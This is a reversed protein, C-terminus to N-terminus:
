FQLRPQRIEKACRNNSMDVYKKTIDYGIFPRNYRASMACETGSGSFPVVVLDNERSCTLILASTLKEPKITDHNFNKSINSQQSFEFVEELKLPNYFYRRSEDYEARLDDYERSLFDRKLYEKIKLYQEKTIINEGNIWNSVCGTLGGTKSPFLTAIDKNSVGARDLETKLYISFPNQINDKISNLEIGASQNSYMLLRENHTNFTRAQDPSYYQYQMSDIKRWLISNELYFYKDLIMQSYAIKKKDGWWFLTGNDALIRKCELVWLEVDKLYEDFSNWVFDFDGKVQFYPPDAIILKACKEPIDNSLFNKHHIKNIDDM